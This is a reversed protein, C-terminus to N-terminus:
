FSTKRILKNKKLEQEFINIFLDEDKSRIKTKDIIINWFEGERQTSKCYKIFENLKSFIIKWTDFSKDLYLYIDRLTPTLLKEM